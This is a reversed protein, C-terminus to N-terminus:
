KNLCSICKCSKSCKKGNVFCSCYKKQCQSKQCSCCLPDNQTDSFAPMNKKKFFDIAQERQPCDRRNYCDKCSCYIGCEKGAKLCDCYLKLCNTKGCSCKTISPKPDVQNSSFTVPNTKAKQNVNINTKINTKIEHRNATLFPPNVPNVPPIVMGPIPISVPIPMPTKMASPLITNSYPFLPFSSYPPFYFNRPFVLPLPLGNPNRHSLYVVFVVFKCSFIPFSHLFCCQSHNHQYLLYEPNSM